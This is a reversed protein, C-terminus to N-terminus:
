TRRVATQLGASVFFVTELRTVGAMEDKFMAIFYVQAGMQAEAPMLTSPTNIQKVSTEALIAFANPFGTSRLNKKTKHEGLQVLIQHLM